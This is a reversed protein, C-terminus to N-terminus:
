GAFCILVLFVVLCVVVVVRLLDALVLAARDQIVRGPLSLDSTVAFSTLGLNADARLALFGVAALPLIFAFPAPVPGPAATRVAGPDAPRM